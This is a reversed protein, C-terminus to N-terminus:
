GNSGKDLLQKMLMKIESMDSKINNIEAKITNIEERQTAVLKRKLKYEELGTSDKNLLAM